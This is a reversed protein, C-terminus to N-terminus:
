EFAYMSLALSLYRLESWFCILLMIFRNPQLVGSVRFGVECRCFSRVVPFFTYFIQKLNKLLILRFFVYVILFFHFCFFSCFSFTTMACVIARAIFSLLLSPSVACRFSTFYILDLLSKEITLHQSLGKFSISIHYAEEEEIEKAVAYRRVHMKM